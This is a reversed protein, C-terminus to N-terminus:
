LSCAQYGCECEECGEKHILTGGCDPCVGESVGSVANLVQGSLLCGDRFLTVGKVGSEIALDYVRM